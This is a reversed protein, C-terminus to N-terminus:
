KSGTQRALAAARIGLAAEDPDKLVEVAEIRLVAVGQTILWADRRTDKAPQDGMNHGWGDLEVALKAAVCYFDLIYPGLPHQRRFVPEGEQRHRLRSWIMTEPPTM